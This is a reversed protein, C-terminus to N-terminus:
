GSWGTERYAATHKREMDGEWEPKTMRGSMEWNISSGITTFSCEVCFDIM